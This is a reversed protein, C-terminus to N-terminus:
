LEHAVAQELEELPNKIGMENTFDIFGQYAPSNFQRKLYWELGYAKIRIQEAWEDPDYKGYSCEEVAVACMEIEEVTKAKSVAVKFAITLLKEYSEYDNDLGIVEKYSEGKLIEQIFGIRNLVYQSKEMKRMVKIQEVLNM